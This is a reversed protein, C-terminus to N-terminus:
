SSTVGSSTSGFFPFIETFEGTPLARMPLAGPSSTVIFRGAPTFSYSTVSSYVM